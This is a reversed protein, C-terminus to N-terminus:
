NAASSSQPRTGRSPSALPLVVRVHTGGTQNSTILLEGNLNEVRERMGTIGVGARVAGNPMGRGQDEIELWARQADVGIRIAVTKSGSHRHVNTLSEQLVRFVVLEIEKGLVGLPEAIELKAQIGSRAAFGKVYWDVASALGAEELLPPHLLHSLTRIEAICSDTIQSAEELKRDNSGKNKAAELVMSLAALYQGVSDHLERAIHRREEDQTRVLRNWLERLQRTRELAERNRHELERTRARVQTELGDALARLQEESERLAQEIQKQRTIDNNTELVGQPNGERNRVLAWRSLIVIRSGDKRTHTLEGTWHNEQRLRAAILELPEPFVTQLLEHTVLGQAEEQTYGYLQFAGRNWYTVRDASDRVIIADNSLDLLRAQEALSRESRKRESIDRAVRSVGVIGGTADKMPSITLSVDRKEGNKTLRVTEFHHIKEGGRIRDLIVREDDHLEPPIVLTIPQGIMEEAPYGFLREAGENCSTVIGNLDVSLISDDSSEVIAVLNRQAELAEKRLLAMKVHGSVRALLERATFPKVLYDDAGAELGEVRSEEGARASVLIVPTMSLSPDSRIARLVGFGDMGPMMADTLVLAPQLHRAAEIAQLGDCVAHVRYEDQLLHSLYDRMDANDDAVLVLKREGGSESGAAIAGASPAKPAIPVDVVAGFQAPSWREAEGVYAEASLATSSQTRPAQIREAPLHAKGRPIDVIFCSGRGLESEVRVSGGHLKVLEQVLALGIGSGEYSRGPAGEIRHFREFVRSIEDAPIGTGTDRVRLEVASHSSRLSIEIEGEFTFKFANSLLNLVIKEWMERDVYVEEPLSPCDIALRMGAREIASRFISALEATLLALDTPEFSAQNRRAEIRSFDLLANVLKLLRLSNRHALELNERVPAPLGGSQAMADELPGMMLTLPTRFEHSVNSFFATKAQDLAALAEARKREEEYARASAITTAIQTSMLELFNRYRDDFQLRSSIGVIMFGAFQHPINSRIPVIAATSPPDAWPGRPSNQFRAKLDRAPQIEGTELAKAIPWFVSAAPSALEIEKLCARDSLNIGAGGALRAVERKQDLLYFLVFPVDQPHRTLAEAAIACAEEGTKPEVSRAGLDRLAVVRREGIVKETIEHVTALVGGIGSPVTEDPVPSYAITFHTEEVFGRRNIELPIDEMWTAPGGHFPTEILPKLIHWIELWVESVPQGIAWPHKAGLIPVYADNYLSCFQPGWWLLQPFRNALLFKVMMRLAPPWKDATGLPTKSWDTARMVAGMQGGGALFDLDAGRTVPSSPPSSAAPVDPASEHGNEGDVVELITPLLDRALTAKSVYARAGVQAALHRFVAPDNQSVVIVKAEPVDQRIIRTAEAGDMRPMSLDMLVIDPRLRRATEIAELGDTAEGCVTWDTRRTLLSRIGQRVPEHDDVILFRVPM